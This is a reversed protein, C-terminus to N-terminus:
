DAGEKSGGRRRSKILLDSKVGLIKMYSRLQKEECEGLESSVAELEVVAEAKWASGALRSLGRGRLPLPFNEFISHM